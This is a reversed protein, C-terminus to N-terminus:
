TKECYRAWDDALARRREFMDGRRYAAEVKDSVTHALAMEAVESPHTTQEACWDRFTSRFGHTTLDGRGMRRLLQLMAMNSLPKDKGAGPFVFGDHGLERMEALIAMARDCLPVRHVKGAKMREPPVTWMRNDLDFEGWKARLVEGTRAATLIAFELARASVGVRQRLDVMFTPLAAYPLAPYHEVKASQAPLLAQLNGKWAAPNDGSRMEMAKAWDLIKEIRGRLRAATEPIESWIPALVRRVAGKDVAAVPMNGIRPLVYQDLSHSWQWKHKENRWGASHDEIYQRACEGFTMAKQKAARRHDIPDVEKDHLLARAAAMKKRAGDVTCHPYPGLGM